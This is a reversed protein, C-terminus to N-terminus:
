SKPRRSDGVRNTYALGVTRALQYFRGWRRHTTVGIPSPLKEVQSHAPLAPDGLYRHGLLSATRSYQIVRPCSPFRGGVNSSLRNIAM